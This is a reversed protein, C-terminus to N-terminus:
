VIVVFHHFIVETLCFPTIYYVVFDFNLLHDCLSVLHSFESILQSSFHYTFKIVYFIIILVTLTCIHLDNFSKMYSRVLVPLVAECEFFNKKM